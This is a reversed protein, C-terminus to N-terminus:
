KKIIYQQKIANALLYIAMAYHNSPNYRRIVNFNHFVLWYESSNKNQLSILNAEYTAPYHAKSLIGHQRYWALSRRSENDSLLQNIIKKNKFIVQTATPKHYHWGNLHYYNAISAIIDSLNDNLNIHGQNNYNVAYHLFSSPMFQPQGIAGAYSGMITLPNLDLQHSLKLLSLLESKFFQARRPYNFALTALVNIVRYHGKQKGYNSEIGLTAVIIQPDVKFHRAIKNLLQYHQRWFLVGDNIRTQNLLRKKYIYWPKAEYPRNMISISSPTLEVQAFIKQLQATSYGSLRGKSLIFTQVDQRETFSNALVQTALLLLTIFLSIKKM